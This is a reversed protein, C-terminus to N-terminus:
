EPVEYAKDGVVIWCDDVTCHESVQKMTVEPLDKNFTNDVEVKV